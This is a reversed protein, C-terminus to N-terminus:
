QLQCKLVGLGAPPQGPAGGVVEADMGGDNDMHWSEVSMASFEGKSLLPGVRGPCSEGPGYSGPWVPGGKRERVVRFGGGSTIGISTIPPPRATLYM